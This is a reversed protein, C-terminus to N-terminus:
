STHDPDTKDCAAAPNALLGASVAVAGTLGALIAVAFIIRKM